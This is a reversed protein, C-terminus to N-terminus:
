LRGVLQWFLVAVAGVVTGIVYWILSSREVQKQQEKSLSELFVKYKGM